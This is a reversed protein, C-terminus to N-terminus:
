LPVDVANEAVHVEVIINATLRKIPQEGSPDTYPEVSELYLDQAIGGLTGNATLVHEVQKLLLYVDADYDDLSQVILELPITITRLQLAPAGITQREIQESGGTVKVAPLSDAPLPTVRGTYVHAGASTAGAVIAAAIADIVQKTVHDAM